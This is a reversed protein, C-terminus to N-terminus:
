TDGVGRLNGIRLGVVRRANDDAEAADADAEIGVIDTSTFLYKRLMEDLRGVHRRLWELVMSAHEIEEDRNHELIAKLQPDRCAEARQQYWDVAELEEILSVFARHRDITADSLDTRAEHLSESSM